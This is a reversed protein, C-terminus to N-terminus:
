LMAGISIVNAQDLETKIESWYRKLRFKSMVQRSSSNMAADFTERRTLMAAIDKGFTAQDHVPLSVVADIAQMFKQYISFDFFEKGEIQIKGDKPNLWVVLPMDYILQRTFSQGNAEFVLPTVDEGPEGFLPASKFNLLLDSLGGLSDSLGGGGAIVAHLVIAHGCQRYVGQAEFAQVDLLYQCLQRYASSGTDIVLHSDEPMEGAIDAIRDFETTVIRNGEAVLPLVVVDLERYSGLTNNAADADIGRVSVGMVNFYQMLTSAVFSKGVGGKGQMVFHLTAM